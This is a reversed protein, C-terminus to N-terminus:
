RKRHAITSHSTQEKIYFSGVPMCDTQQISKWDVGNERDGHEVHVRYRAELRSSQM